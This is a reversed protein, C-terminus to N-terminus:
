VQKVMKKFLSKLGGDIKTYLFPHLVGLNSFPIEIDLIASLM